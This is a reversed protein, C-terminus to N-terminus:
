KGPEYLKAFAKGVTALVDTTLTGRGNIKFALNMATRTVAAAGWTALVAPPIPLPTNPCANATGFSWYYFLAAAGSLVDGQGGCRRPAGPLDCTLVVGEGAIVDIMGKCIITVGMATALREVNESSVDDARLDEKLVGRFLRALEVRNPTLIVNKYGQLVDFNENLYFLADADFVLLIKKEMAAQVIHQLTAFTQPRRGLGPGLLLAHLRPLWEEIESMPDPGDLVPHVILEPSYAKIPGAAERSCFVHALDAGCRLATTAAFYPAGTYELSGGVIGIRGAQGKHAGSALPPVVSAVAALLQQNTLPAVGPGAM